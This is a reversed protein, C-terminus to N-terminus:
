QVYWSMRLGANAFEGTPQGTVSLMNSALVQRRDGIRFSNRAGNSEEYM